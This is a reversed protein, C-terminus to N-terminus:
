EDENAPEQAEKSRAKAKAKESLWTDKNDIRELTQFWTYANARIIEQHLKAVDRTYFVVMDPTRSTDLAIQYGLLSDSLIADRIIDRMKFREKKTGVLKQALTDMNIKFMPKDGCYKRAIEYLRRDTPSSLKFYDKDLTLVARAVLSNFLWESITVTFSFVRTFEHQEQHKTKSNKKYGVRKKESLVTYDDIMSFGKTQEIDNTPINTELTTGRLRRLMDIIREFSARGDGRATSQLFDITNVHVTRSVPKGLNLAEVIQSSIFFLLDKDFMTAAGIGSPIVRIVKSGLRYERPTKDPQKALSFLPFDMSAVDDKIPWNTMDCLFLDAQAPEDPPAADFMEVQESQLQPNEQPKM